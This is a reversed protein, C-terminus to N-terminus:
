VRGSGAFVPLVHDDRILRVESWREGAGSLADSRWKRVNDAEMRFM